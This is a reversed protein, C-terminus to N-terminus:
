GHSREHFDLLDCGRLIMGSIQRFISDGSTLDPLNCGTALPLIGSISHGLLYVRIPITAIGFKMLLYLDNTCPHKLNTPSPRVKSTKPPINDWRCAFAVELESGPLRLSWIERIGLLKVIIIYSKIPLSTSSRDVRGARKYPVVGHGPQPM